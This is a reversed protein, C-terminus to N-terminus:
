KLKRMRRAPTKTEKMTLASVADLPIPMNITCISEGDKGLLVDAEIIAFGLHAFEFSINQVQVEGTPIHM